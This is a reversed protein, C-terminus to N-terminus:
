RIPTYKLLLVGNSFATHDALHLAPATTISEFMHQGTGVAVPTLLLHFEDVLRHEMLPVDVPGNGYKLLHGGPQEKLRAVFEAVDGLIVTSNWGAEELSRSAAGPV